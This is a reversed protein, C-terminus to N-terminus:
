AALRQIAAAILKLVNRGHRELLLQNTFFHYEAPIWLKGHGDEWPYECNDPRKGGDDVSPSLLEIERALRRVFQVIGRIVGPAYRELELQERLILPLNKAIYAHSTQIDGPRSGAKCLHAKALKECAMQLLHLKQCEPLESGQLVNWADFDARGQRAFARGWEDPTAM